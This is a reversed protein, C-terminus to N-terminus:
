PERQYVTKSPNQRPKRAPVIRYSHLLTRTAEVFLSPIDHHERSTRYRKILLSPICIPRNKHPTNSPAIKEDRWPTTASKRRDGFFLFGTVGNLIGQAIRHCKAGCYNPPFGGTKFRNIRGEALRETSHM